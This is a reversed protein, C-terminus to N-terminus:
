CRGYLCDSKSDCLCLYQFTLYVLLVFVEHSLCRGAISTEDNNNKAQPTPLPCRKWASHAARKIMTAVFLAVFSLPGRCLSNWYSSRGRGLVWSCDGIVTRTNASSWFVRGFEADKSSASPACMLSSVTPNIPLVNLSVRVWFFARDYLRTYLEQQQCLRVGVLLVVGKPSLISKRNSANPTSLGWSLMTSSGTQNWTHYCDRRQHFSAFAECPQEDVPRIVNSCHLDTSSSAFRDMNLNIAKPDSRMTERCKATTLEECTRDVVLCCM